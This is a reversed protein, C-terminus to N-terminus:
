DALKSLTSARPQSLKRKYAVVEKLFPSASKAADVYQTKRVTHLMRELSAELAVLSRAAASKAIKKLLDRLAVGVNSAFRPAFGSGAFMRQMLVEVRARMHAFLVTGRSLEWHKLYLLGALGFIGVGLTITAGIM